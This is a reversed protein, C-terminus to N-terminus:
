RAFSKLGLRHPQKVCAQPHAIQVPGDPEVPGEPHPDNESSSGPEAPVGMEGKRSGAVSELQVIEGTPARGELRKAAAGFEVVESEEDVLDIGPHISHNTLTSLDFHTREVSLNDQRPAGRKGSTRSINRVWVADPELQHSRSYAPDDPAAGLVPLACAPVVYTLWRAM